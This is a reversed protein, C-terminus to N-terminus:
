PGAGAVLLAAFDVEKSLARLSSSKAMSFSFILPVMVGSSYALTFDARSITRFRAKFRWYNGIRLAQKRAPQRAPTKARAEEAPSHGLDRSQLWGAAAKGWGFWIGRAGDMERGRHFPHSYVDVRGVGSARCEIGGGM